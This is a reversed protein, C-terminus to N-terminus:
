QLPLTGLMGRSAEQTDETFTEFQISAYPFFSEASSFLSQGSGHTHHRVSRVSRAPGAGGGSRAAGPAAGRRRM